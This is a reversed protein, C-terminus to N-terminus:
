QFFMAAQASQPAGKGCTVKGVLMAAGSYKPRTRNVGYLVFGGKQALTLTASWSDVVKKGAGIAYALTCKGKFAMNTYAINYQWTAGTPVFNGPGPLGINDGSSAAGVCSICPVGNVPAGAAVFSMIFPVPSKADSSLHLSGFTMRGPSALAPASDLADMATRTSQAVDESSFTVARAADSQPSSASPTSTSGFGGSCASLFAAVLPLLVFRRAYVLM